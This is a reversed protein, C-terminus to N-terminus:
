DAGKIIQSWTEAIEKKTEEDLSDWVDGLGSRDRLDEIINGTIIEATEDDM